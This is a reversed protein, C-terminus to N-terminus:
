LKGAITDRFCLVATRSSVTRMRLRDSDCAGYLIGSWLAIYINIAVPPWCSPGLVPTQAVSPESDRSGPRCSM